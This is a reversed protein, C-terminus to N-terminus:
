GKTITPNRMAGCIISPRLAPRLGGRLFLYFTFTDITMVLIFTLSCIVQLVVVFIPIVLRDKVAFWQGSLHM